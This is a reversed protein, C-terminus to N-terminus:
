PKFVGIDDPDGTIDALGQDESYDSESGNNNGSPVFFYNTLHCNNCSTRSDLFYLDKGQLEQATFNAFNTQVGEDYKSDISYISRM